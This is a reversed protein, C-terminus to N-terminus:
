LRCMLLVSDSETSPSDPEMEVRRDGRHSQNEAAATIKRRACVCRQDCNNSAKHRATYKEM